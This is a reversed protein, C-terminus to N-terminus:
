AQVRRGVQAHFALDSRAYDVFNVIGDYNFVGNGFGSLGKQFGADIHSYDDINVLRDRNADGQIFFFQLSFGLEIPNGALDTVGSAQLTALYDGDPLVGSAYGPFTFSAIHSGTTYTMARHTLPVSEDATQNHFEIDDTALTPGVNESFQLTVHQRQVNDFHFQGGNVRPRQTDVTFSLTPSSASVSGFEDELTAVATHPGDALHGGKSIFLPVNGNTFDAIALDIQGDANFDAGRLEFVSQGSGAAIYPRFTGDGNGLLVNIASTSGTTAFDMRGDLNFDAAVGGQNNSAIVFQGGPTLSGDGNGKFFHARAAGNEAVMVDVVGDGDYDAPAFGTPNNATPTSRAPRLSGDGNGLLVTIQDDSHNSVLVDAKRDNNMDAIQPDFPANGGAPYSFGPEFTGDGNGLIVRVTRTGREAALV